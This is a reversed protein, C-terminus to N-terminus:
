QQHQFLAAFRLLEKRNAVGLKGFIHKNHYKLTNEKIGLIEMVEAPGRGDLYHDFIIRETPTLTDIGELFTRYDDPDIENRRHYALRAIENRAKEQETRAAQRESELRDLEARRERADRALDDFLSDIERVGFATSGQEYAREQISSLGRKIPILYRRSIIACGALSVLLLISVILYLYASNGRIAANMMDEPVLVAMQWGDKFPSGEPYLKLAQLLGGYSGSGECRMFGSAAETIALPADLQRGTLYSNGAILGDQALLASDKAPAAIAFIGPYSSDDPSYLQKFMRDSVEIGCIGFVSGDDMRLPVCLLLGAESNGSLCTRGTWHYLRSLPLQPNEDYVRMLEHFFDLEGADYHMKWQGLLEIGHKRAIDAPGRLCYVKSPLSPASVPQTKKIFLGPLSGGADEDLIVFVGGCTNYEAVSLLTPMCAELLAHPQAEDGAIESIAGSLKVGTLALASLDDEAAEAIHSLESQLYSHLERSGSGTIGFAMLLLVFLLIVSVFALSFSLILRRQLTTGNQKRPGFLQIKPITLGVM